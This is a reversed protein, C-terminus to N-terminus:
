FPRETSCLLILIFCSEGAWCNIPVIFIFECFCLSLISHVCPTHTSDIHRAVYAQRWCRSNIGLGEGWEGGGGGRFDPMSLYNVCVGGWVRYHIKAYGYFYGIIYM